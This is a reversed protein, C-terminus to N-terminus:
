VVCNEGHCCKTWDEKKRNDYPRLRSPPCFNKKGELPFNELPDPYRDPGCSGPWVILVNGKGKGSAGSM